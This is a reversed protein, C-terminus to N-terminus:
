KKEQREQLLQQIVAAHSRLANEHQGQKNWTWIMFGWTMVMQCILIIGAIVLLVEQWQEKM